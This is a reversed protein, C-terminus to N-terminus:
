EAAVAIVFLAWWFAAMATTGLLAGVRQGLAEAAKELALMPDFAKM